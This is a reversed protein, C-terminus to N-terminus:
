IKYILGKDTANLNDKPPKKITEKAICFSTLKILDRQNIKANVETVKPSQGLFVNTHNIDSFTEGINEELLKITDQRTNLAKLWKSNVQSPISLGTRIDQVILLQETSISTGGRKLFEACKAM